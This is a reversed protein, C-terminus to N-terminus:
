NTTNCTNICPLMKKLRKPIVSRSLLECTARLKRTSRSQLPFSTTITPKKLKQALFYNIQQKVLEMKIQNQKM